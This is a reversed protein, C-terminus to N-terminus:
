ITNNKANDLFEYGAWLIKKVIFDPPMGEMVKPIKAEIFGADVLMEVHFAIQLPDYGEIKLDSNTVVSDLPSKELEMLILRILDFNRERTLTSM